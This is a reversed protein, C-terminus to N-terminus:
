FKTKIFTNKSYHDAIVKYLIKANEKDGTKLAFDILNSIYFSQPIIPIDFKKSLKAYREEMILPDKVVEKANIKYGNFILKLGDILAPLVVSGHDENPYPEYKIHLGKIEKNKIEEAFLHLAEEHKNFQQGLEKSSVEPEADAVYLYKSSYNTNNLISDTQKVILMNDWWTSPDIAIYGNFLEPTKYITNMIFLGGFSHGILIKLPTVRYDANIKPILENGIFERFTAGGGSDYQLTADHTPTLDRSRNTNVIGVVIAEPMNPYYDNALNQAIGSVVNFFKEGDLLYLVPYDQDPYNPDEYHKPLSVWYERTEKLYSSQLTKIEGIEIKQSYLFYSMFLLSFLLLKKTM